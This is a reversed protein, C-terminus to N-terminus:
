AFVVYIRAKSGNSKLQKKLAEAKSKSSFEGEVKGDVRVEYVMTGKKVSKKSIPVAKTPKPKPPVPKPVLKAKPLRREVPAATKPVPKKGAQNMKKLSRLRREIARWEDYTTGYDSWYNWYESYHSLMCNLYIRCIEDCGNPDALKLAIEDATYVPMPKDMDLYVFWQGKSDLIAAIDYLKMALEGITSYPDREDATKKPATKVPKSGGNKPSDGPDPDRTMAGGVPRESPVNGRKPVPKTFPKVDPSDQILYRYTIASRNNLSGNMGRIVLYDGEIRVDTVDDIIISSCGGNGRGDNYSDHYSLTLNGSYCGSDRFKLTRKIINGNYANDKDVLKGNEIVSLPCGFIITEMKPDHTKFYRVANEAKKRLVKMDADGDYRYSGWESRSAIM